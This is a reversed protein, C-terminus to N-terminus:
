LGHEEVWKGNKFKAISGALTPLGATDVSNVRFKVGDITVLDGKQWYAKTAPNMADTSPTGAGTNENQGAPPAQPITVGFSEAIKTAIGRIADYLWKTSAMKDFTLVSEAKSDNIRLTRFTENILTTLAQADDTTVYKNRKLEAQLKADASKALETLKSNMGQAWGSVVTWANAMDEKTFPRGNGFLKEYIGAIQNLLSESGIQSMENKMVVSNDIAQMMSKMAVIAAQPNGTTDSEIFADAMKSYKDSTSNYEDTIKALSANVFARLNNYASEAYQRKEFDLKSTAMDQGFDLNQMKMTNTIASVYPKGMYRVYEAQLTSMDFMDQDYNEGNAKKALIVRGIEDMKGAVNQAKVANEEDLQKNGTIGGTAGGKGQYTREWMVDLAEGPDFPAVRGAVELRSPMQGVQAKQQLWSGFQDKRQTLADNRVMDSYPKMDAAYQGATMGAYPNLVKREYAALDSLTQTGYNAM